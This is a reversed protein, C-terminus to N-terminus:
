ADATNWISPRIPEDNADLIYTVIGYIPQGKFSNGTLSPYLLISVTNGNFVNISMPVNQWQIMDDRVVDVYGFISLSYNNSPSLILDSSLQNATNFGPDQQPSPVVINRLNEITYAHMETGNGFGMLFDVELYNVEQNVVDMSWNGALVYVPLQNDKNPATTSDAVDTVLSGIAGDVQFTDIGGKSGQQGGSTDIGSSGQATAFSYVLNNTSHSLNLLVIILLVNLGYRYSFKLSMMKSISYSHRNVKVVLKLQWSKEMGISVLGSTKMGDALAHM